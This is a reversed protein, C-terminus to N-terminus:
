DAPCESGQVWMMSSGTDLVLNVEQRNSGIYFKSMYAYNGANEVEHLFTTDSSLSSSLDRGYSNKQPLLFRRSVPESLKTRELTMEIVDSGENAKEHYATAIQALLLFNLFKKM